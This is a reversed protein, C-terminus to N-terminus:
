GTVVRINMKNLTASTTTSLGTLFICSNDGIIDLGTKSWDFSEFKYAYAASFMGKHKFATVGFNGATGTLVTLEVTTVARIFKNATAPFIQRMQGATISAGM